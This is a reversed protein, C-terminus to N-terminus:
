QFMSQRGFETGGRRRGSQQSSRFLSEALSTAFGRSREHADSVNMQPPVSMSGAGVVGVDQTVWWLLVKLNVLLCKLAKNWNDPNMGSYRISYGAVTEKETDIANFHSDPLPKGDRSRKATLFSAFCDVCSIFLAMAKDFPGSWIASAPGYLKHDTKGDSIQLCVVRSATSCLKPASCVSQM